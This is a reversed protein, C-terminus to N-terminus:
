RVLPLGNKAAPEGGGTKGVELNAQCLANGGASGIDTLVNLGVVRHCLKGVFIMSLVMALRSLARWVSSALASACAM